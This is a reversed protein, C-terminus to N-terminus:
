WEVVVAKEDDEKDNRNKKKGTKRSNKTSKEEDVVVIGEWDIRIAVGTPVTQKESEISYEKLKQYVMRDVQNNGYWLQWEISEKELPSAQHSPVHVFTVPRDDEKFYQILSLIEQIIASHKVPKGTYTKWGNKQWTKYWKTICDISYQSDTVITFKGMSPDRQCTRLANWIAYLEAKQNSPDVSIMDAENRPDDPGFFIAWAATCNKLGNNRAGGDTFVFPGTLPMRIDKSMDDPFYREKIVCNFTM